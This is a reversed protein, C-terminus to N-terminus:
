IPVNPVNKLQDIDLKDGNSKLSALDIKEAFSSTDIATANKLDTKTAYNSFDLWSQSKRFIKTRSFM